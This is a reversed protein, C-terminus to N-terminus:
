SKSKKWLRDFRDLMAQLEFPPEDARLVAGLEVKASAELKAKRNGNGLAFSAPQQGLPLAKLEALKRDVMEVFETSALDSGALALQELDYFDRIAERTFAARVKEARAEDADLAFCFPGEGIGLEAAGLTSLTVRRPSKMMPRISVELKLEQAGFESDYPLQWVRHSKKEHEIGHPIPLRVGVIEPMSKLGDRIENLRIANDRARRSPDGPFVLDADESMRKFGLDVKALLTGGKLLLRDGFRQGIWWLLRTLYYDKEILDPQLRERAAGERCRDALELRDPIAPLVLTTM